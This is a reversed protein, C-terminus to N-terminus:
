LELFCSAFSSAKHLSDDDDQGDAKWNGLDMKRGSLLVFSKLDKKWMTILIQAELTM